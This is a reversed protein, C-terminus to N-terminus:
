VVHRRFVAMQTPTGYWAPSPVIGEFEVAYGHRLAVGAAWRTGCGLISGGIM